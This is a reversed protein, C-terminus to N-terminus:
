WGEINGPNLINNPDLLRKIGLLIKYYTEGYRRKIFDIRQYSMGWEGGAGGYKANLEETKTRVERVFRRREENSLHAPVVFHPHLTPAGIHGYLYMDPNKVSEMKKPLELVEAMADPLQPLSPAVEGIVAPGRKQILTPYIVERCSWIQEWEHPDEVIRMEVPNEKEFASFIRKLKWKAEGDQHGITKIMIVASDKPASLGRLGFSIEVCGEDLMECLLPPLAKETYMRVIARAIPLCGGFFAAGQAEDKPKPVLKLRIKTIVGLLGESGVFLRTLDPGSPRRMAKTGTEIIEGTPLVVELGLVYDVPKGLCSDVLHGSTNVAIAGGVTAIMRSGPMLPLFYGKKDLMISLDLIRVGPGCELYGHDEFIEVDSMRSTSIVICKRKPRAAGHLATGSGHIWVPIRKENAYRLIESVERANAPKVVAYPIEDDILDYPMPDLAYSIRDYISISVNEKGVIGKLDEFLAELSFVM